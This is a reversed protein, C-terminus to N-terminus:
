RREATLQHNHVKKLIYTGGGKITVDVKYGVTGAVNSAECEYNGANKESADHIFFNSKSTGNQLFNGNKNWIVSPTPYGEVECVLLLTNGEVVTVKNKSRKLSIQWSRLKEEVESM